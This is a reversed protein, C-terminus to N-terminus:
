RRWRTIIRTSSRRRPPSTRSSSAVEQGVASGAARRSLQARRDGGGVDAGDDQAEQARRHGQHASGQQAQAQRDEATLEAIENGDEEGENGLERQIAKMQENLYYERQTKEMQRKVRSRIKHEVKLVGLEGEMFAFAMELRKLPDAEILMAQKDSVKVAINAAVMDALKAADEIQGLQTSTEAPLKKNLRAYDEFQEVVSRM